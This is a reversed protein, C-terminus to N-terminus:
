GLGKRRTGTQQLYAVTMLILQEKVQHVFASPAEANLLGQVPGVLATSLMYSVVRLDGFTVDAATSLTDCLALQSRQTMRAVVDASGLANAVAYLAKSADPRSLKADIYAGVLSAGMAQIPQGKATSCAKEVATLVANLHRELAAALLASKNPFYQYLTGVSVGARDAVKTTTLAQMDGQMLVQITAEFIAEVTYASRAQVPMRIPKALTKSRTM